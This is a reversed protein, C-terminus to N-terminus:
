QNRIGAYTWNIPKAWLRSYLDIFDLIRVRLDAVSSFSNHKLLRRTLFSFWCEIQNLWSAHKPTYVFRIRHSPDELFAMRTPMSRLIGSRGKQGLELDSLGCLTAVLKVLSESKHTNLQDCVFTWEAQPDTEIVAKIHAVFDVETRTKDIHAAIIQGSAIDLSAILAQTGDRSYEYELRRPQKPRMPKDAAVREQAQIGTKEDTSM